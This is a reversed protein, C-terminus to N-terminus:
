GAGKAEFMRRIGTELDVSPRWGLVRAAKRNDAVSDPIENARLSEGYQVPVRRGSARLAIGVAQDVSHSQGSGINFVESSPSEHALAKLLAEVVDDIYVFDRRPTPDGLALRGELIGNVIKPILFEQRQGPGYANFIRLVTVPVGFDRQYSACLQESLLKSATYPNLASAPHREDVPLYRPVGYVYAGALVFRAGNLRALELLNLTTLLNDRYFLQPSEYSPPVYTKGAVHAVAQIGSLDKVASWDNLDVGNRRDLGM